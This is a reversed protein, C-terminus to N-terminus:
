DSSVTIENKKMLLKLKMSESNSHDLIAHASPRAVFRDVIRQADRAGYETNVRQALERVIDARPAALRHGNSKIREQVLSVERKVIAELSETSLKDFLIQSGIRNIFEPRMFEKVASKVAAETNAKTVSANAESFGLPTKSTHQSGLNSTMVIICKSFDHTQGQGDTMRGADLIQLFQDWIEPHAKEVEDLLILSIPNKAVANTLVGGEHFGVYGPPSGLLKSRAHSDAYESMDLRVVNMENALAHKALTLATETKGVGTPGLFLMSQLPRTTDHMHAAPALLSETVEDIASDQGLINAKLTSNLEKLSSFNVSSADSSVRDPSTSTSPSSGFIQEAIEDEDEDFGIPMLLMDERLEDLISEAVDAPASTGSLAARALARRYARIWHGPAGPVLENDGDSTPTLQEDLDIMKQIFDRAAFTDFTQTFKPAGAQHQSAILVKALDSESYEMDCTTFVRWRGHDGAQQTKVHFEGCTTLFVVPIGLSIALSAVFHDSVVLRVSQGKTAKAFQELGSAMASPHIAVGPGTTYDYLVPANSTFDAWHSQSAAFLNLSHNRGSGDEGIVAVPENSLLAEALRTTYYRTTEDAKDWGWTKRRPFAPISITTPQNGGMSALVDEFRAKSSM